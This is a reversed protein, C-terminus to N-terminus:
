RVVFTLSSPTRDSVQVVAPALAREGSRCVLGFEWSGEEPLAITFVGPATRTAVVIQLGSRGIPGAARVDCGPDQDLVISMTRGRGLEIDGLDVFPLPARPLPVRRIAYTGGGVRLEGGGGSALTVAFRGDADTRADGGKLDIPDEAAAFAAPDPVAIIVVGAAPTGGALVRGRAIGPSTLHITVRGAGAPLLMSGRGFREHWAVIEYVADGLSDVQVRGDADAIAEATFVRRPPPDKGGRAAPAPAPDILRFITVLAAAAPEGRGAVVRADVTHADELLVRIPLQPAGQAVDALPVYAPGSRASVIEIWASPPSSDGAVWIASGDVPTVRVDAVAGSEVRVAKARQPAVIPRAATLRLRPPPGDGRDHCVVLRAWASPHLSTTAQATVVGSWVHSGDIAVVVGAADLPVGLCAWQRTNTWWCAPWIQSGAGSSALWELPPGNLPEGAADGMLTRRWIGDLRRDGRTSEAIPGDILYSGDARQFTVIADSSEPLAISLGGGERTTAVDLAVPGSGWRWRYASVRVVESPVAPYVVIALAVAAMM